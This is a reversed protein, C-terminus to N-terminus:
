RLPKKTRSLRRQKHEIKIGSWNSNFSNVGSMVWELELTPIKRSSSKVFVNMRTRRPIKVSPMLGLRGPMFKGARAIVSLETDASGALVALLVLLVAGTGASGVVM